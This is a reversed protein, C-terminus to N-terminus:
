FHIAVTIRKVTMQLLKLGSMLGLWFKNPIQESSDIDNPTKEPMEVDMCDEKVSTRLARIIGKYPSPYVSISTAALNRQELVDPRLPITLNLASSVNRSLFHGPRGLFAVWHFTYYHARWLAGALFGTDNMIRKFHVAILKLVTELCGLLSNRSSEWLSASFGYRVSTIFFFSSQVNDFKTGM